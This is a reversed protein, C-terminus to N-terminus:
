LLPRHSFYSAITSHMGAAFIRAVGIETPLHLLYQCHDRPRFLSNQKVFSTTISSTGPVAMM